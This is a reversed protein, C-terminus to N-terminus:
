RERTASAIPHAMADVPVTWAASILSMLEPPILTASISRVGAKSRAVLPLLQGPILAHHRREILQKPLLPLRLAVDLLRHDRQGNKVQRRDHLPAIRRLRQAVAEIEGSVTSPLVMRAMVGTSKRVTASMAGPVSCPPQNM